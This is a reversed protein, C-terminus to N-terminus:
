VCLYQHLQSYGLFQSRDCCEVLETNGTLSRSLLVACDKTDFNIASIRTEGSKLRGRHKSKAQHAQDFLFGWVKDETVYKTRLGQPWM